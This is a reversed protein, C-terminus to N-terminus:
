KSFDSLKEFDDKLPLNFVMGNELNEESDYFNWNKTSESLSKM